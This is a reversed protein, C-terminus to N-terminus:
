SAARAARTGCVKRVVGATTAWIGICVAEAENDDLDASEIEYRGGVYLRALMKMQETEGAGRGLVPLRWTQPYVRVIRAPSQGAIRWAEIWAGVRAAIGDRTRSSFHGKAGAGAGFREIVMVVPVEQTVAAKIATDVWLAREAPKDSVARHELLKGRFFIAAGAKKGPDIALIMAEVPRRAAEQEETPEVEEDVDVPRSRPMHERPDFESPSTARSM